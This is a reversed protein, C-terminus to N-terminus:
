AETDLGQRRRSARLTNVLLQAVTLPGVGGPVPTIASAKPKVRTYDVDGVVAYGRSDFRALKKAKGPYLHEILARDTVRNIGVDIVVTGESVHDPGIMAPRGVAAILIDALRCVSPLDRTRSHCLTVTCHERLLLAAMPKGVIASRGVIVAHKGSLEIGSRHLLEMIGTPTAPTLVSPPDAPRRAPKDLWMGGVNHPHFGDVDKEPLVSELVEREPLHDPLPLQVLIGDVGPDENLEGLHDMLRAHEIDRPLDLTEGDIGVDRCAKTKSSVYVASAPNDGVLMAVLKPRRAGAAILADVGAAVESHLAAAVPKGKLIRTKQM